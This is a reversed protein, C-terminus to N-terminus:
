LIPIGCFYLDMFDDLCGLGCFILGEFIVLEVTDPIRFEETNLSRGSTHSDSWKCVTSVYKM